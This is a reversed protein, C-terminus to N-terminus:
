ESEECVSNVAESVSNIADYACNSEELASDVGDFRSNAERLARDAGECRSDVVEHGHNSVEHGSAAAERRSEAEERPEGTMGNLSNAVRRRMRPSSITSIASFNPLNITASETMSAAFGDM